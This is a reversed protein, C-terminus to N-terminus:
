GGNSLTNLVDQSTSNMLKWVKSTKDVSGSIVIKFQKNLSLCSVFHDHAAQEIFVQKKKYLDWIRLTKDEGASILFNADEYIQIDKVWNEHGTLLSLLTGTLYNWVRITKDRSATVAVTEDPGLKGSKYVRIAEIYNDHADFCNLFSQTNSRIQRSEFNMIQQELDFVFIKKDNGTTLLHKKNGDCSRIWDDHVDGITKRCYGSSRDWVRITKDRSVSVTLDTEPLNLISSVSHEHGVLTKVCYFERFDYVNTKNASKWIKLSMDSSGSVLEDKTWGLCNISHTHGKLISIQDQLEYDYLRITSDTSGSAFIPETEHVAICTVVDKHGKYVRALKLVPHTLADNKNKSSEDLPNLTRVSKSLLDEALTLKKELELIKSQLKLITLWKRELIREDDKVVNMSNLVTSEALFTKASDTYGKQGFYQWIALELDKQQEPPLM